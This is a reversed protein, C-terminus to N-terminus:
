HPSTARRDPSLADFPLEPTFRALNALTRGPGSDVADTVGISVAARLTNPWSVPLVLARAVAEAIEDAHALARNATCSVLPVEPEVTIAERVAALYRPVVPALLPSHYAGGIPLARGVGGLEEIEKLAGTATTTDGSLVFQGPGNVVAWDLLGGYRSVSIRRVWEVTHEDLRMVVVMTGPRRAHEAQCWEARQRVLALGAEPTIAGAFCLAAIEGFSHGCVAGISAPHEASPALSNSEHHPWTLPAGFHTFAALFSAVFICPQAVETARLDITSLDTIGVIDALREVLDAHRHLTLLRGLDVPDVGQGPFAVLM